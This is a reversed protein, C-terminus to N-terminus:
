FPAIQALNNTGEKDTEFIHGNKLSSFITMESTDTEKM